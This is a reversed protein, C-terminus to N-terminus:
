AHGSEDERGSLLERLQFCRERRLTCGITSLSSIDELLAVGSRGPPRVSLRAPSRGRRAHRRDDARPSGHPLSLRRGEPEQPRHGLRNPRGGLYEGVKELVYRPRDDPSLVEVALDPAVPVFGEPVQSLRDASVFSVDPARVNGEMLRFGSSSDFAVGLKERDVHAKLRTALELSIQGHRGGAPRHGYAEDCGHSDNERADYCWRLRM